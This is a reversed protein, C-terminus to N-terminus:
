RALEPTEVVAAHIGAFGRLYRVADPETGPPVSIRDAVIRRGAERALAECRGRDPKMLFGQANFPALIPTDPLKWAARRDALLGLNNTGFGASTGPIVDSVRGMFDALLKANGFAFALDAIQPHLFVCAPSLSKFQRLEFHFLIRMVARFDNALVGRVERPMYFGTGILASLGAQQAIRLGAKPAGLQSVMRVYATMNPVVAFVELGPIRRRLCRAARLASGDASVILGPRRGQPDQRKKLRAEIDAAAYPGPSRLDLLEFPWTAEAM